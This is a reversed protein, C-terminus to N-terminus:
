QTLKSKEDLDKAALYSAIVGTIIILYNSTIHGKSFINFDYLGHIFIASLLGIFYYIYKKIQPRNVCFLEFPSRNKLKTPIRSLSIWYGMIMGAIFHLLMAIFSRMILVQGGFQAAYAVNEIFSFGLSTIGCYFMTAVPSDYILQEGKVKEGIIFASFKSLEEIFAVQCFSFVLLTWELNSIPHQFNPFLSSFLYIFCVSIIGSFFHLFSDRINISKKPSTLWIIWIYILVPIFALTMYLLGM